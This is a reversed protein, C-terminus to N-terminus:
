AFKAVGSTMLHMGISAPIWQKKTYKLDDWSYVRFAEGITRSNDINYQKVDTIFQQLPASVLFGKKFADLIPASNLGGGTLLNAATM